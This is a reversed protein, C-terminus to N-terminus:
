AVLSMRLTSARGAGVQAFMKQEDNRYSGAKGDESVWIIGRSNTMVIQSKPVGAENMLLAAAGM